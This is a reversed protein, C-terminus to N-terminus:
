VWSFFILSSFFLDWIEWLWNMLNIWILDLIFRILFMNFRICVNLASIGCFPGWPICKVYRSTNNNVRNSTDACLRAQLASNAYRIHIGHPGKQPALNQRFLGLLAWYCGIASLYRGIAGSIIGLLLTGFINLYLLAYATKLLNWPLLNEFPKTYSM